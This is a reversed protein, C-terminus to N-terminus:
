GEVKSSNSKEILEKRGSINLKAFIEITEHRVLSESYGIEAAIGPNTMGREMLTKIQVQRKTLENSQPVSRAPSKSSKTQTTKSTRTLHLALLNGVARLFQEFEVNKPAKDHLLLTYAGYQETPCTILSKWDGAYDPVEKLLPYKKFADARSDLIVSISKKVSETIPLQATLPVAAWQRVVERELGFSALHSVSGEDIVEAISVSRPNFEAFTDFILYRCIEGLDRGPSSLHSALRGVEELYM